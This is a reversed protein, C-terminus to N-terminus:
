GYNELEKKLSEKARHLHTKVTNINLSLIEAIELYEFGQYYMRIITQQIPRLKNLALELDAIRDEIHYYAAKQQYTESELYNDLSNLSEPKRHRKRLLDYFCNTAIRYLWASFKKGLDIKKRNKYLKLFTEQTLDAADERNQSLRYLHNFIAKEYFSLVTEFAKSSGSKLQGLIKDDLQKNTEAM